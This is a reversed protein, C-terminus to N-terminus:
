KLILAKSEIFNNCKIPSGTIILDVSKDFYYRLEKENSNSNTTWNFGDKRLMRKSGDPLLLNIPILDPITYINIYSNYFKYNLYTFNSENDPKPYGFSVAYGLCRSEKCREKDDFDIRMQARFYGITGEQKELKYRIQMAYYPNKITLWDSFDLNNTPAIKTSTSNVPTVPTVPTIPKNNLPIKQLLKKIDDIKDPYAHGAIEMIDNKFGSAEESKGSMQANKFDEILALLEPDLENNEDYDIPKCTTNFFGDNSTSNIPFGVQSCIIIATFGCPPTMLSEEHKPLCWYFDTAATNFGKKEGPKLVINKSNPIYPTILNVFSTENWQQGQSNEPCIAQFTWDSIIIDSKGKNTVTIALIFEKKNLYKAPEDSLTAQYVSVDNTPLLVGKVELGCSNKIAGGVPVNFQITKFPNNQSFSSTCATFVIFLLLLNKMKHNKDKFPKM